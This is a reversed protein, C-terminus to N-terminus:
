RRLPLGADPGQRRRRRRGDRAIGVNQEGWSWSELEIEDKHKSDQSEGDIGDIKLFYDVAAMPTRRALRPSPSSGPTDERSLARQAKRAVVLLLRTKARATDATVLANHVETIREHCVSPSSVVVVESAGAARRGSADVDDARRAPLAAAPVRRRPLRGAQGPVEVVEIRAEAAPEQGEDRLRRRREGRRLQQDLPQPLARDRRAVHLSGIKDRMMAKLYHAFRSVAFIYPLQASLRANANGRRHRVGQGEAGVARQLVRRLGHGQLARAPRLRPRGAGERPPRHDADRDPVEHRHRGVDTTFTHVPLGEVLGGGEVGRITACWGYRPSRRPSARASRGPPTAGCTSAIHDTGDVNEEFNFAEVPVTDTGYPLRMCSTRCPSPSTARTRARRPVIKWKAYETTDFIKALDRPADLETFSEM